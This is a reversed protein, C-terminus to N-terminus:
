NNEKSQLYEALAERIIQSMTKDTKDALQELKTRMKESVRAKIVSEKTIM